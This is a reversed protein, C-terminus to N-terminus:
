LDNYKKELYKREDRGDTLINRNNVIEITGTVLLILTVAAFYTIFFLVTQYNISYGICINSSLRVTSRFEKLANELLM